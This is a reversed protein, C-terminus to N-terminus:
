GPRHAQGYAVWGSNTGGGTLNDLFGARIRYWDYGDVPLPGLEVLGYADLPM